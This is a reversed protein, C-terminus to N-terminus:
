LVKLSSFVLRFVTSKKLKYYKLIFDDINGVKRLGEYKVGKILFGNKTELKPIIRIKEKKKQTSM